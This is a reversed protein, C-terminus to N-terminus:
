SFYLSLIRSLGLMNRVMSKSFCMLATRPPSPTPREAKAQQRTDNAPTSTYVARTHNIQRESRDQYNNDEKLDIPRYEIHNHEM